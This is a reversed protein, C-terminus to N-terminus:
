ILNENRCMDIWESYRHFFIPHKGEFYDNLHSKWKNMEVHISWYGLIDTWINKMRCLQSNDKNENCMYDLAIKQDLMNNQQINPSYM